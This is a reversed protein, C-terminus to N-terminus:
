SFALGKIKHWSLRRKCRLWCATNPDSHSSFLRNGLNAMSNVEITGRPWAMKSHALVKKREDSLQLHSGRLKM